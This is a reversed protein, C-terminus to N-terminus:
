EAFVQDVTLRMKPLVESRITEGRGFIGVTEDGDPRLRLVTVIEVEPDVLWAELVNITRYDALKAQLKARRGSDSLVEVVLEPAVHLREVDKLDKAGTWGSREKSVYLVDPQRTRLPRIRIVVDCPAPLVVGLRRKRVFRDLHRVINEQYWQHLPFPSPAMILEGDIIDYCGEIPPLQTYEEFTLVTTAVASAM